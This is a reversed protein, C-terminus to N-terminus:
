AAGGATRRGHCSRCLVRLNGREHTGGASLPVVHDVTLDDMGMCAECAGVERRVRASISAWKGGYGRERPTAKPARPFLRYFELSHAECRTSGPVSRHPCRPAVCYPRPSAPM